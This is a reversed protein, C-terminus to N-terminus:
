RKGQREEVRAAPLGSLVAIVAIVVLLEVLTFVVCRRIGLFSMACQVIWRLCETKPRRRGGLEAAAM